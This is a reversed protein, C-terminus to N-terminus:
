AKEAPVNTTRASSSTAIKMGFFGSLGSLLGGTLFAYPVFKVMYGRLSLILLIVFVVAFFVSVGIYQRTLYASAGERVAEAIEKMRDTGEDKKLISIVLRVVFILAIFACLPALLFIDAM